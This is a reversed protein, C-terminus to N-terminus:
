GQRTVLTGETVILGAGGVIRQVYYEKMLDSPYTHPARNRTLASMGVRNKITIDGITLPTMLSKFSM